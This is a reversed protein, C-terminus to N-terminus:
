NPRLSCTESRNIAIERCPNKNWWCHDAIDLRRLMAMLRTYCYSKSPHYDIDVEM